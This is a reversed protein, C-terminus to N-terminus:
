ATLFFLFSRFGNILHHDACLFARQCRQWRAKKHALDLNVCKLLSNKFFCRLIMFYLRMIVKCSM